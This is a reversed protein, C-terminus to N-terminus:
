KSGFFIDNLKSFPKGTKKLGKGFFRGAKGGAAFPAQFVKDSIGDGSGTDDAIEKPPKEKPPKEPKPPKEAKIKEPKPPKEAKVKEPKAPKEATEDEIGVAQVPKEAKPPKEAKVKEPKPPKEAKVKAPKVPKEDGETSGSFPDGGTATKEGPFFGDSEGGDGTVKAPKKSPKMVSDMSPEKMPNEGDSGDAAADEFKPKKAAKAPKGTPVALPEGETAAPMAVPAQDTMELPAQDSMEMKEEPASKAPKASKEVKPESAEGKKQKKKGILAEIEAREPDVEESKKGTVLDLFEDPLPQEKLDSIQQEPSKPDPVYYKRYRGTNPDKYGYLGPALDSLKLQKAFAPTSFIALGSAACGFLALVVLAKLKM